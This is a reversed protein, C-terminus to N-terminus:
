TSYSVLGVTEKADKGHDDLRIAYGVRVRAERERVPRSHMHPSVKEGRLPATSAISRAVQIGAAERADGHDNDTADRGYYQRASAAELGRNVARM